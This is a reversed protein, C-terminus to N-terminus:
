GGGIFFKQEQHPCFAILYFSFSKPFIGEFKDGETWEAFVTSRMDSISDLAYLPGPEMIGGEERCERLASQIISEGAEGGGSIGQWIDPLDSRQFIAFEWGGNTKRYPFVHIHYPMRGM